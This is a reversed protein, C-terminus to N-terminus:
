SVFYLVFGALVGAAILIWTGGGRSFRLSFTAAILVMACLLLPGSLLSHWYLRHRVASFGSAELVEIFAPLAWFSLTEPPAFSDEIQNFTLDTPVDYTDKFQAPRDPGTFVADKLEWRGEELHAQSADIRGVFQDNEQYQFIIVNHLTLDEQSLRQAHIVSQNGGDSQRLWIGSPSLALLSSKGRLYKADMQEYRSVMVASLPNFVTMVFIGLMLALLLNPLLFQWVSVGASRAVVLEQTRTMRAFTWLGAVLAAFPLIKQAMFPVRLMAMQLLIGLTALERDPGSGRRMMEVADFVFITAVFILFVMGVGVLFQRSIYFSFTWSLRM